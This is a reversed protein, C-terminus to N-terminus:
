VKKVRGILGFGEFCWIWVDFHLEFDESKDEGGHGRDRRSVLSRVGDPLM